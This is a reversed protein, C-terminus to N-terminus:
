AIIFVTGYEETIQSTKMSDWRVTLSESLRILIILSHKFQCFSETPDRVTCMITVFEECLFIRFVWSVRLWSNRSAFLILAKSNQSIQDLELPAVSLNLLVNTVKDILSTLHNNKKLYKQHPFCPTVYDEIKRFNLLSVRCTCKNILQERWRQPFDNLLM